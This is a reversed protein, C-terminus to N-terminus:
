QLAPHFQTVISQLIHTHVISVMAEEIASTLRSVHVVYLKSKNGKNDSVIQRFSFFVFCASRQGVATRRFTLRKSNYFACRASSSSLQSQQSQFSSSCNTGCLQRRCRQCRNTWAWRELLAQQVNM